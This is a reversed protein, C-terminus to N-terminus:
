APIATRFDDAKSSFVQLCASTDTGGRKDEIACFDYSGPTQSFQFATRFSEDFSRRPKCDSALKEEIVIEQRELENIRKEHATIASPKNTEIIRDTLQRVQQEIKKREVKLADLRGSHTKTLHNWLQELM